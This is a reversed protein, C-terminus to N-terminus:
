NFIWKEMWILIVNFSREISGPLPSCIAKDGYDLEISRDNPIHPPSRSM